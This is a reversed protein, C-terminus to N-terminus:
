LKGVHSPIDLILLDCDYGLKSLNKWIKELFLPFNSIKSVTKSAAFQWATLLKHFQVQAELYTLGPAEQCILAIPKRPSSLVKISICDIYPCKIQDDPTISDSSLSIWLNNTGVGFIHLILLLFYLKWKIM